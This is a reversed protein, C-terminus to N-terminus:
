VSEVVESGYGLDQRVPPVSSFSDVLEFMPRGVGRSPVWRAFYLRWWGLWGAPVCVRARRYRAHRSIVVPVTLLHRVMSQIRWGQAEDPLEMVRLAVLINYALTAIPYFMQNAILELCPPHHLGLDSLVQGGHCTTKNSDTFTFKFYSKQKHIAPM